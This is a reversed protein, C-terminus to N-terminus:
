SIEIRCNEWCTSGAPNGGVVTHPYPATFDADFFPSSTWLAGENVISAPHFRGTRTRHILSKTSAGPTVQRMQQRDVRRQM